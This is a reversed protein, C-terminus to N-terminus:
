SGQALGDAGEDPDSMADAIRDDLEGATRQYHSVMRASNHGARSKLQGLTAGALAAHTLGGHRLDHLHLGKLGLTKQAAIFPKRVEDQRLHRGGTAHFLYATPHALPELDLYARLVAAAQRPLPVERISERTKPPGEVLQSEVRVLAKSIRLVMVSSGDKTVRTAVDGRRLALVEGLRLCGWFKTLVLVRLTETPMAAALAEATERSVWPREPSDSSGAGRVQCPHRSIIEDRLATSLIARLTVYAQRVSTKGVTGKLSSHWESVVASTLEELTLRGLTPYILRDLMDTYLARTSPRHEKAKQAMWQEAYQRLTRESPLPPAKPSRWVGRMVDAQVQVLFADAASETAFGSRYYTQGDPGKYRAQFTGSNGSPRVNGFNSRRKAM